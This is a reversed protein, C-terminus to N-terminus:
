AKIPTMIPQFGLVDISGENNNADSRESVQVCAKADHKLKKVEAATFNHPRGQAAETEIKRCVRYVKGSGGIQNIAEASGTKNITYREVFEVKGGRINTDFIAPNSGLRQGVNFGPAGSSGTIELNGHNFSAQPTGSFQYQIPTKANAPFNAVTKAISYRFEVEATGATSIKNSVVRGSVEIPNEVDRKGGDNAGLPNACALRMLWQPRYKDQIRTAAPNYDWIVVALSENIGGAYGIVDNGDIGGGSVGNRGSGNGNIATNFRKFVDNGVQINTGPYNFTGGNGMYQLTVRKNPDKKVANYRENILQDNKAQSQPVGAISAKIFKFGTEFWDRCKDRLAHFKKHDTTSDKIMPDKDIVTADSHGRLSQACRNIDGVSAYGSEKYSKVYKLYNSNDNNNYDNLVSYSYEDWKELFNETTKLDEYKAPQRWYQYLKSVDHDGTIFKFNIAYPRPLETDNTKYNYIPPLVNHTPSQRGQNYYGSPLRNFIGFTAAQASLKFLGYAVIVGLGVIVFRSIWRRKQSQQKFGSRMGRM